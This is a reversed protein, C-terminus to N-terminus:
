SMGWMTGVSQAIALYRRGYPTKLNQLDGLTLNAMAQVAQVSSSTGNDSASTTVGPAFSNTGYTKRLDSFFTYGPQDAANTIILDGALNYVAETYAKVAISDPPSVGIIALQPNVTMLAVSYAWPIVSDNLPLAVAPIVMVNTIFSQFGALTPQM